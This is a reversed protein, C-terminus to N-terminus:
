RCKKKYLGGNHVFVSREYVVTRNYVATRAPPNYVVAIKHGKDVPRSPLTRM